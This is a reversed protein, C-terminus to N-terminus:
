NYRLYPIHKIHIFVFLCVGVLQVSNVLVYQGRKNITETIDVCWQRQNTTSCDFLFFMGNVFQEGFFSTDGVEEPLQNRKKFRNISQNISQFFLKILRAAMINSANLDVIEEFGVAFVDVPTSLDYSGLLFNTKAEKSQVACDLLWDDIPRDTGRDILRESTRMGKGGNVNWTGVWFTLPLTTTFEAARSFLSGLLFMPVILAFYPFLLIDWLFVVWNKAAKEAARNDCVVVFILLFFNPNGM